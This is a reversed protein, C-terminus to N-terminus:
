WRTLALELQARVDPQQERAAPAVVRARIPAFLTQDPVLVRAAPLDEALGHALLARVSPRVGGDLELMRVLDDATQAVASRSTALGNQWQTNRAVEHDAAEAAPILGLFASSFRFSAVNIRACEWQYDDIREPTCYAYVLPELSEAIAALAGIRAMPPASDNAITAAEDFSAFRRFTPGGTAACDRPYAVPLGQPFVRTALESRQTVSWAAAPDIGAPATYPPRSAAYAVEDAPCAEWARPAMPALPRARLEDEARGASFRHWLRYASVSLLLLGVVFGLVRRGTSM